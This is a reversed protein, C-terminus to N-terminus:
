RNGGRVDEVEDPMTEREHELCLDHFLIDAHATEIQRLLLGSEPRDDPSMALGAMMCDSLADSYKPSPWRKRTAIAYKDDALAAVPASPEINIPIPRRPAKSSWYNSKHDKPWSELYPARDNDLFWRNEVVRADILPGFSHAIEHIIAAVGWVDSAPGLRKTEWTVEPPWYHTTGIYRHPNPDKPNFYGAFGFDALKVEIGSWDPKSGLNKVLVNEFKIDRHVIPKWRDRGMRYQDDIGEHLYALAGMLQSYMSWMFAESFVMNENDIAESRLTFLDGQPCYELLISAEQAQPQQKRYGLYGVISKHPPLDRLVQVENPCSKMYRVVKVAIVTKSTTHTWQEVYGESGKQLQRNFQYNRPFGVAPDSDLVGSSQPKQSPTSHFLMAAMEPWSRDPRPRSTRGLAKYLPFLGM